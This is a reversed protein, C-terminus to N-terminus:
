DIFRANITHGANRELDEVSMELLRSLSAGDILYHRFEFLAVVLTTVIQAMIRTAAECIEQTTLRHLDDYNLIGINDIHTESGLVGGVLLIELVPNSIDGGLRKVLHRGALYVRLGAGCHQKM